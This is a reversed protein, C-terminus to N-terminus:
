APPSFDIYGHLDYILERPGLSQLAAMHRQGTIQLQLLIKPVGPKLYVVASGLWGAAISKWSLIASRIHIQASESAIWISNHEDGCVISLVTGM